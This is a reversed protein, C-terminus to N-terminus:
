EPVEEPSRAFVIAITGEANPAVGNITRVPVPLTSPVSERACPGPVEARLADDMAFKLTAVNDEQVAAAALGEPVALVVAGSLTRRRETQVFASLRGLVPRVVVSESLPVRDRFIAPAGFEVDGFTVMGSCGESLPELPIPQFPAFGDKLARGYLAPAGGVSIMVSVMGPGRHLCSVEARPASSLSDRTRPVVICADVLWHAPYGAPVANDEFPFAVSTNGSEWQLTEVSNGALWNPSNM